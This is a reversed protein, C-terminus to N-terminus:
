KKEFRINYYAADDTDPFGYEIIYKERNLVGDIVFDEPLLVGRKILNYNM